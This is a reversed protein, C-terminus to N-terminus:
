QACRVNRPRRSRAGEYAELYPRVRHAVGLFAAQQRVARQDILPHNISTVVVTPVFRTCRQVFRKICALPHKIHTRHLADYTRQDAANMSVSVVDVKGKLAPCVDKGLAASALGNTNVRIRVGPYRSRLWGAVAAVVQYRLLPEGYGCFVVERYRSVRWRRLAAIIERVSPERQLRM